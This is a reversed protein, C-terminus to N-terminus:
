VESDVHCDLLGILNTAVEITKRGMADLFDYYSRYAEQRYRRGAVLPFHRRPQLWLIGAVHALRWACHRHLPIALTAVWAAWEVTVRVVVV